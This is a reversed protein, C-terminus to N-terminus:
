ELAALALGRDRAVALAPLIGRRRILVTARAGRKRDFCGSIIAANWAHFRQLADSAVLQHSLFEYSYASRFDDPPCPPWM